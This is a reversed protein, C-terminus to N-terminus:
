VDGGGIRWRFGFTTSNSQFRLISYPRGARREAGFVGKPLITGSDLHGMSFSTFREVAARVKGWSEPLREEPLRM